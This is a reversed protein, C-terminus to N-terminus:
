PCYQRYAPVPVTCLGLIRECTEEIDSWTTDFIEPWGTEPTLGIGRDNLALCLAAAALVPAAKEVCLSTRMSDNLFGWAKQAIRNHTDSSISACHGCIVHVYQLLYSHPYILAAALLFGTDRLLYREARIVRKRYDSEAAPAPWRMAAVHAHSPELVGLTEMESLFFSVALIDTIKRVDEEIKGVLLLCAQQLSSGTNVDVVVRVDFETLSRNYYFRHLAMESGVVTMPQLQLMVGM